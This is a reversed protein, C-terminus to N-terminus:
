LSRETSQNKYGELCMTSRSNRLEALWQVRSLHLGISAECFPRTQRFRMRSPSHSLRQATGLSIRSDSRRRTSRHSTVPRYGGFPWMSAKSNISGNTDIACRKPTHAGIRMHGCITLRKGYQYILYYEITMSPRLYTADGEGTQLRWVFGPSRDALANIEDLRTVFGSMVASELAGENACHKGTGFPRQVHVEGQQILLSGRTYGSLKKM